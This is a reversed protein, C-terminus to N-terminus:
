PGSTLESRDFVTGDDSVTSKHGVTTADDNYVKFETATQTHRNRALKYLFAIMKRITQTAAPAEQGIEAFTDVNLVDLVEANVQGATLTSLGTQIETVASAALEASGIADTAIAAADIAGAGFSAAVIGGTAPNATLTETVNFAANDIAGAAFKAATIAGDALEASGIANAAIAAATIADAAVGVVNVDPIGATAPPDVPAGAWAAVNVAVGPSQLIEFTSASSPNTGWAAAVTAVKTSGVYDIILRAQGLANAPSNNTINVYCGNYYDDVASASADLTITSGAGAQATGTRLVPLRIPHLTIPTTKAGATATKVIVTTSVTDMETAILDLFYMGSSTALETAENTVDAFTGSDQSAESDPTTAATVLDGDADLIPFIVRFRANYIPFPHADNPSVTM